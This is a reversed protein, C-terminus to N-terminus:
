LECTEYKMAQPKFTSLVPKSDEEIHKTNKNL